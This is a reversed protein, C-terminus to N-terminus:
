KVFILLKQIKTLHAYNFFFVFILFIRIKALHAYNFFCVFILFKRIKTLHTSSETQCCFNSNKLNKDCTVVTYTQKKDWAFNHRTKYSYVSPSEAVLM